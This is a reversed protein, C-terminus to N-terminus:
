SVVKAQCSELEKGVDLPLNERLQKELDAIRENAKSLQQSPFCVNSLM